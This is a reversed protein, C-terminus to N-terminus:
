GPSSPLKAEASPTKFFHKHRRFLKRFVFDQVIAFDKGNNVVAFYRDLDAKLPEGWHTFKAKSRKDIPKYYLTAKNEEGRKNTVTITAFPDNMLVSDQKTYSNEYSEVSILKFYELYVELWPHYPIKTELGPEAGFVPRLEFSDGPM